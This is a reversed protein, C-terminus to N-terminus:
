QLTVAFGPSTAGCANRVSVTWQGAAIRGAITANIQNPSLDWFYSGSTANLTIPDASAPSTFVIANGGGAIFGTGWVIITGSASLRDGYSENTVAAVFPVASSSTCLPAGQLGALTGTLQAIGTIPYSANRTQVAAGTSGFQTFDSTSAYAPSITGRLGTGVYSLLAMWEKLEQVATGAPTLNIRNALIGALDAGSLPTTGTASKYVTITAGFQAQVSGLALVAFLDTAVRVRATDALNTTSGTNAGDSSAFGAVTDIAAIAKSVVLASLSTAGAAAAGAVQGL